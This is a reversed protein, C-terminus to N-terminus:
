SKFCLGSNNAPLAKSEQKKFHQHLFLCVAAFAICVIAGLNAHRFSAFQAILGMASSGFMTGMKIANSCLTSTFAIRTPLQEQLFTLALGAFLGYYIANVAQLVFFQWVSQAHYIGIYFLIAFVFAFYFIAAKSWQKALRASILMVPIELLADSAMLLGPLAASFGLEQITYLPMASAYLVNASAGLTVVAVLLWFSRPAAHKDGHKASSTAQNVAPLLRRAYSVCALGCLGALLFALSFSLQAAVFFAIAPGAIWAISIAARMRTNFQTIDINQQESSWARALTLMQPIAANGLAVAFVGTALIYLFSPSNLGALFAFVVFGASMGLVSLSYINLNSGGRDSKNALWQSSALGALTVAITYFAFLAPAMNLKDVIFLSM